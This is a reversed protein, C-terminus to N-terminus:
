SKNLVSQSFVTQRLDDQIADVAHRAKAIQKDLIEQRHQMYRLYGNAISIQTFGDQRQDLQQFEQDLDARKQELDRLEGMLAALRQVQDKHKINLLQPIIPDVQMM